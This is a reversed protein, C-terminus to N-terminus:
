AYRMRTCVRSVYSRSLGVIRAVRSPTMGSRLLDLMRERRMFRDPCELTLQSRGMARCLDYLAPYGVVAAIFHGPVPEAPVYLRRHGTSDPNIARALSVARERGIVDSVMQLNNSKMLLNELVVPFPHSDPDQHRHVLSHPSRTKKPAGVNSHIYSLNM